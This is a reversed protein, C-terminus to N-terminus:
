YFFFNAMYIQACKVSFNKNTQIFPGIRHHIMGNIRYTYVNNKYLNADSDAKFSIFSFAANYFRIKNMFHNDELIQELYIPLKEPAAFVVKGRACCLSYEPKSTTGKNREKLWLLGNCFPCIQDRPPLKHRAYYKCTLDTIVNTGFIDSPSFSNNKKAIEFFDLIKKKININRNTAAIKLLTEKHANM